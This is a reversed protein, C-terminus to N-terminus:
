WSIGAVKKHLSVVKGDSLGAIFSAINVLGSYLDPQQPKYKEPLLNMILQGYFAEQGDCRHVYATVFAELLTHLVRYGAIEKEIVEESQYINKRSLSLIRKLAQGQPILESLPAKLEGKLLSTEHDIFAQASAEILAGIAVSRLYGIRDERQVLLKYHETKLHKEVLPMLYDKADTESILGLNVGDEFDIISYCIDDAAEVLFALPHRVFRNDEAKGTRLLSLRDALDAFIEKESQFIGYKKGAIDDKKPLDPLSERPYKIFAGLTAYTLRFRGQSLIKFGNANGEFECLDKYQAPTLRKELLPAANKFYSGIAKEGGHGFPPNGIDHALAASAVISGFDNLKYHLRQLEPHRELIVKGVSRGLSRGVVSVELSHTLRTHVFDTQSLPIVQTKDQLSRFEPSFIIRDFDVEFAIRKEDEAHRQRGYTKFKELSLLKAWDMM